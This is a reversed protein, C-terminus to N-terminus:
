EEKSNGYNFQREKEDNIETGRACAARVASRPPVGSHQSHLDYAPTGGFTYGQKQGGWELWRFCPNVAVRLNSCDISLHLWFVETKSPIICLDRHPKASQEM